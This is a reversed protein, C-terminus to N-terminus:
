DGLAQEADRVLDSVIERAPKIDHVEQVSLGAWMVFDEPDGDFTPVLMAADYRHAEIEGWPLRMTGIKEGAGPRAGSPPRGAAVWERYTKNKLFRHPARPWGGDFLDGSYDTDGATADVIRRKYHPHIWAEECAVFRTGLSVGQAGAKMARAIARGDAIGGSAIVPTNGLANVTAPLTEWISRTAKVHGGAESGQLIVADVGAKKSSTAEEPSGVQALIRVGADHAPGVFPAPDGWFLILAPVREAIALLVMQRRAERQQESAEPMALAAIIINGGFARKTLERTRAVRDRAAEAPIGLGLVGLGGANSVAAALEPTASAGFGVSLIPVDIGLLDCLPTRLGVTRLRGRV